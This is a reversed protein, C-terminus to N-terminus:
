ALGFRRWLEDMEEDTAFEGRRAAEQTRRVEEVQEDTLPPVNERNHLVEALFAAIDDQDDVPLTRVRAVVEDLLKTM